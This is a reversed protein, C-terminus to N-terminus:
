IILQSLIMLAFHAKGEARPKRITVNGAGRATVGHGVGVGCRGGVRGRVAGMGAGHEVAGVAGGAAGHEVGDAELLAVESFDWTPMAEVQLWTVGQLMWMSPRARWAAAPASAAPPLLRMKLVM